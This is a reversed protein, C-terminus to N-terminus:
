YDMYVVFFFAIVITLCKTKEDVKERVRERSRFFRTTTYNTAFYVFIGDHM